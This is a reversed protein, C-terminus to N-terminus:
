QRYACLLKVAALKVAIQPLLTLRIYNTRIESKPHEMESNPTMDCKPHEM